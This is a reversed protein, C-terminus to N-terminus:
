IRSKTTSWGMNKRNTNFVLSVLQEISISYQGYNCFSVLSSTFFCLTVIGQLPREIECSIRRIEPSIWGLGQLILLTKASVDADSKQFMQNWRFDALNWPSIQWIERIEHFRGSKMTFDPLNWPSIQRIEHIHAKPHHDIIPREISLGILHKLLFSKQNTKRFIFSRYKIM